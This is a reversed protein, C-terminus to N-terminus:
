RNKKNMNKPWINFLGAKYFSKRVHTEVKRCIRSIISDPQRFFSFNLNEEWGVEYVDANKEIISCFLSLKRRM